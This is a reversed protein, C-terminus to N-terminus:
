GFRARAEYEADSMRRLEHLEDVKRCWEHYDAWDAATPIFVEPAGGSIPPLIPNSNLWAIDAQDAFWADIEAIERTCCDIEYGDQDLPRQSEPRFFEISNM